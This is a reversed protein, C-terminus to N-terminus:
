DTIRRYLEYNGTDQNYVYWTCIGDENTIYLSGAIDKGGIYIGAFVPTATTLLSQDLNPTYLWDSGDCYYLGREKRNIFWVGTSERVYWFEGSHNEEPPLDAFTAVLGTVPNGYSTRKTRYSM